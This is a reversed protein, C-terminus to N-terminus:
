QIIITDAEVGAAHWYGYAGNSINGKVNAPPTDFLNGFSEQNLLQNVFTYYPASISAMEVVVTDGLVQPGDVDLEFTIYNGDVWEDNAIWELYGKQEGNSMYMWQYNNGVGLPEQAHLTVYYGDDEDGLKDVFAYTLSDLNTVPRIMDVAEYVEGAYVVRLKYTSGLKGASLIPAYYYGPFDPSETLTDTYTDDETITVFAGLVPQNPQQSLYPSSMTIRVYNLINGNTIRGEIVIAPPIEDLDLDIKEECGVFFFAFSVLSFLIPFRKM